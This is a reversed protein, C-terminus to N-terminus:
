VEARACDPWGVGVGAGRCSVAGGGMWSYFFFSVCCFAARPEFSRFFGVPSCTASNTMAM